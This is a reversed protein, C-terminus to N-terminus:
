ALVFDGSVGPPVPERVLTGFARSSDTNASASGIVRDVHHRRGSRPGPLMGILPSVNGARWRCRQNPCVRIRQLRSGILDYTGSSHIRSGAHISLHRGTTHSLRETEFFHNNLIQRRRLRDDTRECRGRISSRRLHNCIRSMAKTPSRRLDEGM